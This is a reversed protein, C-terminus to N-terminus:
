GKEVEEHILKFRDIELNRAQVELFRSIKNYIDEAVKYDVAEIEIRYRPAGITYVVVKTNSGYNTNSVDSLIKKIREIGDSKYCVLEAIARIKVTKISIHRQSESFVASAWDEPIGRQALIQPGRLVAEELISLPDPEKELVSWVCRYAEELSKNVNKASLEVIKQARQIRKWRLIKARKEGELVRKISIDVQVKGLKKEVRIVKGVVVHNERIVDRIDKVYRTSVESWPIFAELNEYELLDAYAGYDFVKKVQAVVLEGVEPSGRKRFPM